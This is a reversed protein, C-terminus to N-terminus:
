FYFTANLGLSMWKSRWDVTPRDTAGVAVVNYGLHAGVTLRRLLTLDLGAGFDFAPGSASASPPSASLDRSGLPDFSTWSYGVHGYAYPALIRGIGVRLGPRVRVIGAGLDTYGAALEPVIAVHAYPILFRYGLRLDFGAGTSLYRQPTQDIPIAADFDAALAVDARAERARVLVLVALLTGAVTAAAPIWTLRKM